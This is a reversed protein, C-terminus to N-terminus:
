RSSTATPATSGSQGPSRPQPATQVISAVPHASLVHPSVNSEFSFPLPRRFLRLRLLPSSPLSSLFLSLSVFPAALALTLMSSLILPLHFLLAGTQGMLEVFGNAPLTEKLMFERYGAADLYLPKSDFKSKCWYRACLALEKLAGFRIRMPTSDHNRAIIAWEVGDNRLRHRWVGLCQEQHQSASLSVLASADLQRRM